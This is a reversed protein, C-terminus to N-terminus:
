SGHARARDVGVHAVQQPDIVSTSPAAWRTRSIPTSYRSASTAATIAVEKAVADPARRGHRYAAVELGTRPPRMASRSNGPRPARTRASTEARREPRAPSAASPKAGAADVQGAAPREVLVQAVVRALLHALAHRLPARRHRHCPRAPRRSPHDGSHPSPLGRHRAPPRPPSPRAAPRQRAVVRALRHARDQLRGLLQLDRLGLRLDRDVLLEAPHPPKVGVPLLVLGVVARGLDLAVPLVPPQHHLRLPARPLTTSVQSRTGSPLRSITFTRMSPPAPGFSSSFRM